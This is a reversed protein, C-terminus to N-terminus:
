FQFPQGVMMQVGMGENSYAVDIRAVLGKAWMASSSIWARNQRWGSVNPPRYLVQGLRAQFRQLQLDEFAEAQAAAIAREHSVVGLLRGQPDLVPLAQLRKAQMQRAVEERDLHAPVSFVDRHVITEIKDRAGALLLERMSLVGALRNERDTVYLYFVRERPTKRIASIAEQVTLDISLSMVRPTM